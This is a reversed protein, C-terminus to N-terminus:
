RFFTTHMKRGYSPNDSFLVGAVVESSRQFSSVDGHSVFVMTSKASVGFKSILSDGRLWFLLFNRSLCISSSDGLLGQEHSPGM